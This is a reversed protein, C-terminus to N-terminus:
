EDSLGKSVSFLPSSWPAKWEDFSSLACNDKEQSPDIWLFSLWVIVFINRQNYDVMM